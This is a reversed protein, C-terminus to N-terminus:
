LFHTLKENRKKNIIVTKAVTAIILIITFKQLSLRDLVTVVVIQFIAVEKKKMLGKLDMQPYISAEGSERGKELNRRAKIDDEIEDSSSKRRKKWGHLEM